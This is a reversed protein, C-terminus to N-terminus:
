SEAERDKISNRIERGQPAEGVVVKYVPAGLNAFLRVTVVVFNREQAEELSLALQHISTPEAAPPIDWEGGVYRCMLNDRGLILDTVLPFMSGYGVVSVAHAYAIKAIMRTHVLPEVKGMYAAANEAPHEKLLRSIADQDHFAWIEWRGEDSDPAGELIGPSKMRLGTLFIPFEDPGLMIDTDFTYRGQGERLVLPFSLQSPREKPRRTPTGVVTRFKGMMERLCFQEVKGTIKACERCSAKPLMLANGALGFPIIHELELRPAFKEGCYICRGVPAYTRPADDPSMPLILDIPM